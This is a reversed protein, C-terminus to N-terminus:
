HPRVSQREILSPTIVVRIQGAEPFEIRNLLSQAALRGMGMKDIRMTTLAPTIHQALLINDFGIIALDDPVHRGLDRATQMAAIAVDDNCGFIATVDPHAKLFDPFSQTVAQPLLHCDAFYTTLDAETIAQIYGERRERISPYAEPQSGVIAIHRHGNDILYRTARYGGAVNDSVVTDYPNGYAYADVLVVPIERQSITATLTKDLDVGVLLLGDVETEIVLRPLETPQNLEDVPINSFMLNINNKRCIAEIGALVPTYFNNADPLDGPGAKIVLGISKITNNSSQASPSYIYGLAQAKDLVRQRTETGVGPKDRLVLSVTAPSVGTERAIDTITVKTNPDSATKTM